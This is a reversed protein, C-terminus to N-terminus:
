RATCGAVCLIMTDDLRVQSRPSTSASPLADELGEGAVATLTWGLSRSAPSAQSPAVSFRKHDQPAATHQQVSTLQQLMAQRSELQQQAVALQQRLTEVTSALEREQLNCSACTHGEAYM